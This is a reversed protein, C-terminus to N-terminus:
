LAANFSNAISSSINYFEMPEWLKDHIYDLIPYATNGGPQRVHKDHIYNGRYVSKEIDVNKM